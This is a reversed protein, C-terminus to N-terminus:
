QNEQHHQHQQSDAEGPSSDDDPTPFGRFSPRVLVDGLVPLQAMLDDETLERAADVSIGSFFRHQIELQYCLRILSLDYDLTVRARDAAPTPGVSRGLADLQAKCGVLRAVGHRLDEDVARPEEELAARLLSVYLTTM